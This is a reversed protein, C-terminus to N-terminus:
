KPLHGHKWFEWDSTLVFRRKKNSNWVAYIATFIKLTCPFSNQGSLPANSYALVWLHLIRIGKLNLPNHHYHSDEKQKYVLYLEMQIMILPLITVAIMCTWKLRFPILSINCVSMTFQHLEATIKVTKKAKSGGDFYRQLKSLQRISSSYKSYLFYPGVQMLETRSASGRVPTVCKIRFTKADITVREHISNFETFQKSYLGFKTQNLLFWFLNRLTHM